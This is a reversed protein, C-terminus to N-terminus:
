TGDYSMAMHYWQGPVPADDGTTPIPGNVSPSGSPNVDVPTWQLTYTPGAAVVMKFQFGRSYTTGSGTDTSMIHTTGATM